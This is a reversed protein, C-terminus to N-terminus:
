NWFLSVRPPGPEPLPYETRCYPCVIAKWSILKQCRCTRGVAFYVIVIGLIPMLTGGIFWPFPNKGRSAALLGTGIGILVMVALAQYLRRQRTAKAIQDAEIRAIERQSEELQLQLQQLRAGKAPAEEAAFLSAMLWLALLARRM